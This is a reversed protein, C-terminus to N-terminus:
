RMDVIDYVKQFGCLFFGVVCKLYELEYVGWSVLLFGIMLEFFGDVLGDV